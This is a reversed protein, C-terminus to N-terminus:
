LFFAGRPALINISYACSFSNLEALLPMNVLNIVHREERLKISNEARLEIFM